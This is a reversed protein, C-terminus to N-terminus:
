KEILLKNDAEYESKQQEIKRIENKYASDSNRPSFVKVDEEPESSLLTEAYVDVEKIHCMNDRIKEDINNKDQKLENLIEVLVNYIEPNM